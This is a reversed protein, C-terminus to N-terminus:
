RVPKRRDAFERHRRMLGHRGREHEGGVQQVFGFEKADDLASVPIVHAEEAVNARADDPLGGVDASPTEDGEGVGAHDSVFESVGHVEPM